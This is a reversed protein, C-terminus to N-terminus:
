FLIEDKRSSRKRTMNKEEIMAVIVGIVKVAAKVVIARNENRKPNIKKTTKLKKIQNALHKQNPKSESQDAALHVKLKNLLNKKKKLKL